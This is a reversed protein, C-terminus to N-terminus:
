SFPVLPPILSRGMTLVSDFTCTHGTFVKHHLTGNSNIIIKGISVYVEVIEARNAIVEQPKSDQPHALIQIKLYGNGIQVTFQTCRDLRAFGEGTVQVKYNEDCETVQAGLSTIVAYRPRRAQTSRIIEKNLQHCYQARDLADHEIWTRVVQDVKSFYRNTNLPSIVKFFSAFELAEYGSITNANLSVEVKQKLIPYKDLDLQLCPLKNKDNLNNCLYDVLLTVYTNMQYKEAVQVLSAIEEDEAVVKCSYLSEILRLLLIEEQQDANVVDETMSVLYSCESSLVLKHLHISTGSVFTLVCDSTNSNNYQQRLMSGKGKLLQDCKVNTPVTKRSQYQSNATPAKSLEFSYRARNEVDHDVWQSVAFIVADSSCYPSLKFLQEKFKEFNHNLIGVVGHYLIAEFTTNIQGFPHPTLFRTTAKEISPHKEKLSLSQLVNYENMNKALFDVLLEEWETLLLMDAKGILPVIDYPSCIELTNCYLARLLSIVLEEEDPEEYLPITRTETEKMGSSFLARFKESHASLIFEHVHLVRGSTTFIIKYDASEEVNFLPEISSSRTIIAIFNLLM